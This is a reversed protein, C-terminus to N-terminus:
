ENATISTVEMFSVLKPDVSHFVAKFDPVFVGRKALNQRAQRGVSHMVFDAVELAPEHASKPMFYCDVPIPRGDAELKLGQFAQTILPDARQSSEFIIGLSDFPSRRAIDVIRQQLVRAIAPLPTLDAPFTTKFSLIAGLRAFPQTRFFDAVTQIGERTASGAFANAHLPTEM